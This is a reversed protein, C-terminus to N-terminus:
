VRKHILRWLYPTLEYPIKTELELINGGEKISTAALEVSNFVEM